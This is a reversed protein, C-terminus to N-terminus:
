TMDLPTVSDKQEEIAAKEESVVVENIQSIASQKLDYLMQEQTLNPNGFRRRFAALMRALHEDSITITISLDAM